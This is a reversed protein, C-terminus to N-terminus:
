LGKMRQKLDSLKYEYLDKIELASVRAERVEVERLHVAKDKIELEKNRKDLEKEAKLMEKEKKTLKKLVSQMSKKEKELLEISEEKNKIISNNALEAQEKAEQARDEYDKCFKVLSKAKMLDKSLKLLKVNEKQLQKLMDKAKSPDSLVALLSNVEKEKVSPLGSIFM